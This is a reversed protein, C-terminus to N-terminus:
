PRAEALKAGARLFRAPDVADGDLRVEYHLHPGTSRGTSGLKGVVAGAGVSQGESVTIASMHAYRTTLGNGHDIEVMNGYGGNWGAATVMGGATARIPAGVEDRFDVGAHMAARGLFPDVRAGFGSTQEASASLPARLPVFPALRRFKDAAILASQLRAVEREFLSGNPDVKLPVFPGGVGGTAERPAAMRDAPLGADVIAQRVKQAAARARQEILSLERIQTVELRDLSSAIGSLRQPIPLTPDIPGVEGAPQAAARELAAQPKLPAPKQPGARVSSQEVPAFGLAAAPLQPAERDKLLPNLSARV